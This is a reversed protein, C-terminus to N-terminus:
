EHREPRRRELRSKAAAVDAEVTRNQRHQILHEQLDILPEGSGDLHHRTWTGDPSLWWSAVGPDMALDILNRLETKHSSDTARVLLEVRRDMNRHMLDASGIWV